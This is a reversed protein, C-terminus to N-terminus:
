LVSPIVGEIKELARKEDEHIYTGDWCSFCFHSKEFGAAKAMGELSLYGVSDAGVIQAIERESRDVAILEDYSNINIGYRHPHKIPASASRFHVQRAGAQKLINTTVEATLSRVISDDIVVVVKGKVLDKNVIYKRLAFDRRFAETTIFTRLIDPNKELGRVVPIGLERGYGEAALNGGNPVPVIIEANKVPKERALEVGFQQRIESIKRGLMLSEPKALYVLEFMDLRHKPTAIQTSHLGKQDIIVLEGPNVDRLFKTDKDFACTESALVFAGDGRRGISLPRIGFRDRLGALQNKALMVLAFAGTFLPFALTLAQTLSKGLSLFYVLADFMLESDNRDQTVLGKDELFEVLKEVEPLNGNHGLALYVGDKSTVPQCHDLSVDLSTTYRNHGIAIKGKLPKLDKTKYIDKVLGMGKFEYFAHGDTTVIGSSDQGRHQLEILGQLTDSAAIKSGFIGFVGCKEQLSKISRHPKKGM